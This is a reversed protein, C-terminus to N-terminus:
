NRDKRYYKAFEDFQSKNYEGFSSSKELIVEWNDLLQSPIETTNSKLVLSFLLGFVESWYRDYKNDILIPIISNICDFAEHSEMISISREKFKEFYWEDYQYKEDAASLINEVDNIFPM